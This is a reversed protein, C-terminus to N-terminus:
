RLRGTGKESRNLALAEEPSHNQHLGKIRQNGMASMSFCSRWSTQPENTLISDVRANHSIWTLQHENDLFLEYTEHPLAKELEDAAVVRL